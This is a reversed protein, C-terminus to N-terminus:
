DIDAVGLGFRVLRSFHIEPRCRASLRFRRSSLSVGPICSRSVRCNIATKETVFVVSLPAPESRWAIRSALPPVPASVILKSIPPPPGAVMEGSEARGSIVSVTVISAVVWGPQLPVGSMWISPESAPPSTSPRVISEPALPLVILPSIMLSKVPLSYPIRTFPAVFVVMWPFQIPVFAAPVAAAPLPLPMWNILELPSKIPVSPSPTFSVASRFTMLPLM